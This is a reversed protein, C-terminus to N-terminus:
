AVARPSQIVSSNTGNSTVTSNSFGANGPVSADCKLRRPVSIKCLSLGDPSGSYSSAISIGILNSYTIKYQSGRKTVPYLITTTRPSRSDTTETRNRTGRGNSAGKTERMAQEHCASPLSSHHQPREASSLRLGQRLASRSM